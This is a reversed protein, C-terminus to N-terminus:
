TQLGYTELEPEHALDRGAIYNYKAQLYYLIVVLAASKCSNYLVHVALVVFGLISWTFLYKNKIIQKKPKKKWNYVDKTM